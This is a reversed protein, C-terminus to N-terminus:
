KSSPQSPRGDNGGLPASAEDLQEELLEGGEIWTDEPGELEYPDESSDNLRILCGNPCIGGLNAGPKVVHDQRAEGEIVTVKHDVGDRNTVSVAGAASTLLALSIATAPVVRVSM